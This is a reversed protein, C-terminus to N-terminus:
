DSGADQSAGADAPSSNETPTAEAEPSKEAAVTKKPPVLDTASGPLTICGALEAKQLALKQGATQKGTVDYAPVNKCVDPNEFSAEGCATVLPVFLGFLAAPGSLVAASQRLRTPANM